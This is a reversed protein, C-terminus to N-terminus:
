IQRCKIKINLQIVIDIYYSTVKIEIKTNNNM